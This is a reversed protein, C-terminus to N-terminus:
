KRVCIVRRAADKVADLGAQAAVTEVGNAALMHRVREVPTVSSQPPQAPGAVVTPRQVVVGALRGRADVAAAGTFGQAPARELTRANGALKAAATSVANLGGQAQPDAVGVLTLEAASAAADAVGIPKLRSAGYVRLLALGSDRDEAMREANGLGAVVIVQCREVNARATIFHGDGSVALATGYEVKRRAEGTVSALTFRAYPQFASAMAVIMPDITGEMAQDYLISLGRVDGDRAYVRTHFKKLGQMGSVVFHQDRMASFRVKRRATEKTHQEFLADLSAGTDIRFTEIQLQGQESSWRTGSPARAAVTALKTPVGVRAGTVPDEVLRWAVDDQRPRVAASLSEREQASLVGTIKSKNRKQYAKVADALRDSFAGDLPGGYDGTWSLDSQLAAREVHSLAAYTDALGGPKGAAAVAGTTVPDPKAPKSQAAKERPDPRPLETKDTKAAAKKDAAPKAITTKATTTKATTTKATAAKAKARAKPGAKAKPTAKVPGYDVQADSAHALSAGLVLAILVAIARM